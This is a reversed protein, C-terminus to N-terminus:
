FKDSGRFNLIALEVLFKSNAERGKKRNCDRTRALDLELWVIL